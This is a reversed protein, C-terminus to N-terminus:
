LLVINLYIDEMDCYQDISPVDWGFLKCIVVYEYYNCFISVCSNKDDM